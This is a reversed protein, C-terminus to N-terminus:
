FWRYLWKEDINGLGYRQGAEVLESRQAQESLGVVWSVTELMHTDRLSFGGRGLYLFDAPDLHQATYEPRWDPSLPGMSRDISHGGRRLRELDLYTDRAVTQAVYNGIPITYYPHIKMQAYLLRFADQRGLQAMIEPDPYKSPSTQTHDGHHWGRDHGSQADARDVGDPRNEPGAASRTLIRDRVIEFAEELSRWELIKGPLCLNCVQPGVCGPLIIRAPMRSSARIDIWPCTLHLPFDLALKRYRADINKCVEQQTPPMLMGSQTWLLQESYEYEFNLVVREVDPLVYPLLRTASSLARWFDIECGDLSSTAPGVSLQMQAENRIFPLYISPSFNAICDLPMFNLARILAPMLVVYYHNKSYLFRAAETHVQRCTRLFNAPDQGTNLEFRHGEARTEDLARSIINGSTGFAAEYVM